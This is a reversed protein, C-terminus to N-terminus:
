RFFESHPKGSYMMGFTLKIIAFHRIYQFCYNWIGWLIVIFQVLNHKRAVYVDRRISMSLKMRDFNWHMTDTYTSGLFVEVKSNGIVFKTKLNTFMTGLQKVDKDIHMPRMFFHNKEQHM